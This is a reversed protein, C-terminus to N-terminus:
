GLRKIIDRIGNHGGHGGKPKMRLSGYPTSLDDYIVLMEDMNNMSNPNTRLKFKERRILDAVEHGSRNMFSMPKLLTTNVLPYPYGEEQTRELRRKSTMDLVDLGLKTQSPDQIDYLTSDHPGTTPTQFNSASAKIYGLQLRDLAMFGINHRTKSFQAGPNGLGVLLRRVSSKKPHDDNSQSSSTTFTLYHISHLNPKTSRILRSLM